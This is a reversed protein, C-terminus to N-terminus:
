KVIKFSASFTNSKSYTPNEKDKLFETWNYGLKNLLTYLMEAQLVNMGDRGWIEFSHGMNKCQFDKGFVNKVTKKIESWQKKNAKMM